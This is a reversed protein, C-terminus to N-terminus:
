PVRAGRSSHHDDGAALFVLDALPNHEHALAFVVEQAALGDAELPIRCVREYRHTGRRWMFGVGIGLSVAEFVADRTDAVLRPTPSLGARAFARDLLRQTSSGRSRFILAHDMLEALPICTRTALPHSEAVISVVEHDLVPQRRFRPDPPIDPLIGVDVEHRLVAKLVSQHSASEITVTVLPHNALVRGIIEMGPMSNGLGVKLQRMGAPNKRAILRALETETEQLREGLEALSVCFPTPVFRGNEREFLPFGHRAEFSRVQQAIATHTVGVRRAAASFTGEEALATIARLCAPSPTSAM